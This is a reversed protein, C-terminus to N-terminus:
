TPALEIRNSPGELNDPGDGHSSSMTGGTATEREAQPMSTIQKRGSKGKVAANDVRNRRTDLPLGPNYWLDKINVWLSPKGLSEALLAPRPSAGADIAM